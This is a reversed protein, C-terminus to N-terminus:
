LTVSFASRCVPVGHPAHRLSEKSRSKEKRLDPRKTSKTASLSRSHSSKTPSASVSDVGSRKSSTLGRPSKGGSPRPSKAAGSIRPTSPTSSFDEVPSLKTVFADVAAKIKPRLAGAAGAFDNASLQKSHRKSKSRTVEHKSRMQEMERTLDDVLDQVQREALGVNNIFCLRSDARPAVERQSEYSRARRFSRNRRKEVVWM